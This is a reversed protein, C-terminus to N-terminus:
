VEIDKFDNVEALPNGASDREKDVPGASNPPLEPPLLCWAFLTSVGNSPLASVATAEMYRLRSQFTRNQSFASINLTTGNLGSIAM